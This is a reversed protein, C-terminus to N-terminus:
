SNFYNYVKRALPEFPKFLPKFPSRIIRLRMISLAMGVSTKVPKTITSGDKDQWAIPIEVIEAGHRKSDVLLNVDYAMDAIVLNPLIEKMLTGTGLKAGCQTDRVSLNFLLRRYVLFGTSLIRRSLSKEGLQSGKMYRSGVVLVHEGHNQIEEYLKYYEEPTASSDADTFGIYQVDLQKIGATIAGGKGIKYPIDLNQIQPYKKAAKLTVGATNDSCNNSVVLIIFDNELKKQFFAAYSELTSAIRKEENYAPMIIGLTV